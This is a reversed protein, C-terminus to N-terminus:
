IRKFFILICFFLLSFILIFVLLFATFSKLWTKFDVVEFGIKKSIKGEVFRVEALHRGKKLNPFEFCFQGKVKYKGVCREDLFLLITGEIPEFRKNIRKRLEGKLKVRNRLGFIGGHAALSVKFREEKVGKEKEKISLLSKKILIWGLLVLTLGAYVFNLAISPKGIALFIGSAIIMYGLTKIIVGIALSRRKRFEDAIDTRM